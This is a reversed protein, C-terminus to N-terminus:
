ASERSSRPGNQDKEAPMGVQRSRLRHLVFLCAVFPLWSVYGGFVLLSMWTDYYSISNGFRALLRYLFFILRWLFPVTFIITAVLLLRAASRLHAMSRTKVLLAITIGLLVLSCLLFAWDMIDFMIQAVWSLSTNGTYPSTELAFVSMYFGFCTITAASLLGAFVFALIRPWGTHKAPLGDNRVLALYYAAEVISLFGAIFAQGQFSSAYPTLTQMNRGPFQTEPSVPKFGGLRGLLAM